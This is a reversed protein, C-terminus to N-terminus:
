RCGGTVMDRWPGGAGSCDNDRVMLHSENGSSGAGTDVFLGSGEVEGPSPPTDGSPWLFPSQVIGGGLQETRRTDGGTAGIITFATGPTHAFSSAGSAVIGRVDVGTTSASGDARIIGGHMHFQGKVVQVATMGPIPGPPDLPASVAAGLESRVTSGFVRLAGPSTGGLGGKAVALNQNLGLSDSSPRALIDGGYFWVDAEVVDMGYNAVTFTADETTLAHARVGFMFHQAEVGDPSEPHDYWGFVAAGGGCAEVTSDLYGIMDVNWWTSSGNGDWSVGTTGRAELNGFELGECGEVHIGGACGGAFGATAGGSTRLFHTADRGAGVVTVHGGGVPCEFADFNGPGVQVTVRDTSSPAPARDGPGGGWLWGTLAATNTFCDAVGTCDTRLHVSSASSSVQAGAPAALVM